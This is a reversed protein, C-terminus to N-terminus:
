FDFQVNVRMFRPQLVTTPRLWREGV